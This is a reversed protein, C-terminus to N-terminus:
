IRERRAFVGFFVLHFIPFRSFPFISISISISIYDFHLLSHHAYVTRLGQHKLRPRQGPRQEHLRKRAPVKPGVGLKSGVVRPGVEHGVHYTPPALGFIENKSGLLPEFSLRGTLNQVTFPTLSSYFDNDFVGHRKFSNCSADSCCPTRRRCPGM